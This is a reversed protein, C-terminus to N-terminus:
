DCLFWCNDVKVGMDKAKSEALKKILKANDKAVIKDRAEQKGDIYGKVAGATVCTAVPVYACAIASTAGNIADKIGNGYKYVFNDYSCGQIVLVLFFILILKSSPAIM